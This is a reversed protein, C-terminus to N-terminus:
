LGSSPLAVTSSTFYRLSLDSTFLSPPIILTLTVRM